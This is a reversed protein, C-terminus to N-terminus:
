PLPEWDNEVGVGGSFFKARVECGRCKISQESIFFTSDWLIKDFSTIKKM